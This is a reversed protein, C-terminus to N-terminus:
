LQAWLMRYLHFRMLADHAKDFEKAEMLDDYSLLEASGADMIRARADQYGRRYDSPRVEGAEQQERWAVGRHWGVSFSLADTQPFESLVADYATEDPRTDPGNPM